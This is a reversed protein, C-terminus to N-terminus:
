VPKTRDGQGLPRQMLVCDVWTDLKWGISPLVGVVTFGCARHLAISGHNGLNGIVAIMQRYGAETTLDILRNLLAKGVARGQADPSVYVSNECAFRYGPRTRYASAYAYGEIVGDRESVIYPYGGSLISAQRKAMEPEDPAEYEFSARGNLVNPGYIATIAPIDAPTAARIVSAGM